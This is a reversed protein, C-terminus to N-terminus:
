QLIQCLLKLYMHVYEEGRAVRDDTEWTESIAVVVQDLKPM